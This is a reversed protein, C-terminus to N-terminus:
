FFVKEKKIITENANERSTNSPLYEFDAAQSIQPLIM